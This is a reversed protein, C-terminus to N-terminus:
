KKEQFIGIAINSLVVGMFLMNKYSGVFILALFLLVNILNFLTCINDYFIRGFSKTKLNASVNAKGEAKRKKVEESSLGRFNYNM